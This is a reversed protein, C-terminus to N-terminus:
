SLSHLTQEWFPLMLMFAGGREALRVSCLVIFADSLRKLDRFDNMKVMFRMSYGFM